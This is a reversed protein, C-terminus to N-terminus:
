KWLRPNLVPIVWGKRRFELISDVPYEPLRLSNGRGRADDGDDGVADDLDTGDTERKEADIIADVITEGGEEM